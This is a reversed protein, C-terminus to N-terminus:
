FYKRKLIVHQDKYLRHVVRYIVVLSVVM